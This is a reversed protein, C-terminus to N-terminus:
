YRIRSQMLPPVRYSLFVIFAPNSLFLCVEYAAKISGHFWGGAGYSYKARREMAEQETEVRIEDKTTSMVIESLSTLASTNAGNPEDVEKIMEMSNDYEQNVWDKYEEGEGGGGGERQRSPEFITPEPEFTVERSLGSRQRDMTPPKLGSPKPSEGGTIETKSPRDTREETNWVWGNLDKGELLGVREERYGKLLQDIGRSELATKYMWDEATVGAGRLRARKNGYGGDSWPDIGAGGFHTSPGGLTYFPSLANTKSIAILQERERDGRIGAVGHTAAAIEEEQVPAYPTFGNEACKALCEDEYYDDTVWKGDTM